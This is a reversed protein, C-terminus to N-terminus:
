ESSSGPVRALVKARTADDVGAARLVAETDRGLAPAPGVEADVASSWPSRPAGRPDFVGRARHHADAPVEHPLLVPEVCADVARFREVWDSRAGTRLIDQLEARVRAGADGGDLGASVLDERGIAECFASWFKPELASVALHGDAVEYLTYAPRSGDLLEEGARPSEGGRLKGWAVAGFAIAADGLALDLTAGQGTRERRFLALAIGAVAGLSGGVDAVQVGPVAPALGLAGSRAMYGLDHGARGADPGSRGWGSLSAYITRPFRARVQEPGLGYRAMVGPRFSEFVVDAQAVLAEAAARGDPDRLDLAVSKKGANLLEFLSGRSGAEDDLLPPVWRTMDGGAPDEIKIVEAGHEVLWRTALPGPLLRSFDVVRVGALADHM